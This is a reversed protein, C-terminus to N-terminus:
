RSEKVVQENELERMAQSTLWLARIAFLISVVNLVLIAVDLKTGTM